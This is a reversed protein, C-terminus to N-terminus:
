MKGQYKALLDSVARLRHMPSNFSAMRGHGPLVHLFDLDLLKQISQLQMPLSFWNYKEFVYLQHPKIVNPPSSLHDGTFITRSPQHYLCMHGATHGPTFVIQCDATSSSPQHQSGTEASSEEVPQLEAGIQWPGEGELQIEVDSTDQTVENKHIIRTANFHRAWARHNGVDDQHTLFMWRIGGLEKIRDRLIPNFRPVDVLINGEPRQVLYSAAAIARVDHWGCHWVGQVGPIPSPLNRQAQAMIESEEAQPSALHISHTPCSILAEVARVKQQADKPQQSVVSQGAEEPRSFSFPAMWMHPGRVPRRTCQTQSPLASSDWHKIGLAQIRTSASGASCVEWQMEWQQQKLPRSHM